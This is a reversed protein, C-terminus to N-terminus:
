STVCLSWLATGYVRTPIALPLVIERAQFEDNEICKHRTNNDKTKFVKVRIKDISRSLFIRISLDMSLFLKISQGISLFLNILPGISLFLKISPGISLFLNILQGISLFLNILTGISVFLKISPSM